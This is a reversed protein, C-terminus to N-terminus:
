KYVKPCDSLVPAHSNALIIARPKAYSNEASYSSAFHRCSFFSPLISSFNPFYFDGVVSINDSIKNQKEEESETPYIKKTISDAANEPISMDGDSNFDFMNGFIGNSMSDGWEEKENAFRSDPTRGSCMLSAFSFIYQYLLMCM